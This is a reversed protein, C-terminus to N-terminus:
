RGAGSNRQLGQECNTSMMSDGDHSTTPTLDVADTGNEALVQVLARRRPGTDRKYLLLGSRTQLQKATIEKGERLVSEAADRFREQAEREAVSSELPKHFLLKIVIKKFIAFERTFDRRSISM